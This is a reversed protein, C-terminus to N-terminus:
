RVRAPNENLSEPEDAALIGFAGVRGGRRRCARPGRGVQAVYVFWEQYGFLVFSLVISARVLHYDLGVRLLGSKALAGILPPM